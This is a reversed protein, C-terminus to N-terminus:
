MRRQRVRDLAGRDAVLMTQPPVEVWGACSLTTPEASVSISRAGPRFWLSVSTLLEPDYGQPVGRPYSAVDFCYRSAVLARETCAMVNFPSSTRLELEDRVRELISVCRHLALALVASTLPGSHEELQSVFLAYIWESDTGGRIASAADATIHRMLAQRMRPFGVLEGNHCFALGGRSWFFPHVNDEHVSVEARDAVGRLHALAMQVRIKRALEPLNRDFAAPRASRYQYPRSPDPSEPDWAVVGVGAINRMAIMRPAYSQAIFSSDGEYLLEFLSVPPGCYALARCM